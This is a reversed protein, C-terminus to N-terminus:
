HEFVNHADDEMYLYILYLLCVVGLFVFFQIQVPVLHCELERRELTLPSVPTKPSIPTEPYLYQVPRGAAGKIPKRRTAYIGTPTTQFDPFMDRLADNVPAKMGWKHPSATLTNHCTENKMSYKGLFAKDLRSSLSWHEEVNNENMEKDTDASPSFSGRSEMQQECHFNLILTKAAMILVFSLLHPFFIIFSEEEVMQTISFTQPSLSPSGKSIVSQSAHLVGSKVDSPQKVYSAGTIPMASSCSQSWRSKPVKEANRKPSPESLLSPCARLRSSPLFCQHYVYDNQFHLEAQSCNQKIPELHSAAKQKGGDDEEAESDSYRIGEVASNWQADSQLVKRLKKEYVARTSAVIPGAQIKYKLLMAKLEDDTLSSPDLM